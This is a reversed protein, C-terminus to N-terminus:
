EEAAWSTDFIESLSQRKEPLRETTVLHPEQDCAKWGGVVFAVIGADGGYPRAVEVFVDM